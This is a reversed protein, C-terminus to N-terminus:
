LATYGKLVRRRDSNLLAVPHPKGPPLAAVEDWTRDALVAIARLADPAVAWRIGLIGTRALTFAALLFRLRRRQLAPLSVTVSRTARELEPGDRLRPPAYLPPAESPPAMVASVSM